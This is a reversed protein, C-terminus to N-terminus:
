PAGPAPAPSPEAGAPPAVVGSPAPTPEAPAAGAPPPAAPAPPPPLLASPDADRLRPGTVTARPKLAGVAAALMQRRAPDTAQDLAAVLSQEQGSELLRGFRQLSRVLAASAPGQVAAPASPDLVLDALRRQADVGPVNGLALAALSALEPPGNVAHFLADRAAPLGSEFPNGPESGLIALAGAARQSYAAAAARDLPRGGLRGLERELVPGFAKPDTPTVVLATHPHTAPDLLVTIRDRVAQPLRLQAPAPVGLRELVRLLETALPGQTTAPDIPGVYYASGPIKLLTTHSARQAEPAVLVVPFNPMSTRARLDDVWKAVAQPDGISEPAILVARAGPVGAAAEADKGPPVVTPAFGLGRVVEAMSAARVPDSDVITVPATLVAPTHTSLAQPGYLLVPIGATRADARLNALLDKASWPNQVGLDTPEIFIVEVDAATTAERFGERADFAPAVEYGLAQLTSAVTNARNPNVDVVVARPASGGGAAFRALIPVVQSSGPFPQRLGLGVMAQAASFQVRRDPASLARVLPHVPGGPSAPVFANRDTVRGLLTAAAAALDPLDEDLALNLVRGLVEPGSELAYRVPQDPVSAGDGAAPAPGSSQSLLFGDIGSRAIAQRLSLAVLLAQADRNGPDLQLAQRAFRAGLEAEADARPVTRAVPGRGQWSWVEVPDGEPLAGEHTLYRRAEDLLRGVSSRPQGAFSRGTIRHIAQRAPERVVTEEATGAPYALFPVARPDGLRGLAEAADAAINPEPADLGAVLAPTANRELRSMATVLTAQEAPTRGPQQLAEFLAPVAHPGAHRLQELGYRQEAPFGLLAETFRQLREPDRAQRQAADTMMKTVREAYPKTAPDDELRLFSGPGYSDRIQLLVDDPPNSRLFAELYPVAQRAQATRVLYDVADWYELPTEPPKAFSGPGPAQARAPAPGLAPVVAAGLSALLAARRLCAALSPRRSM